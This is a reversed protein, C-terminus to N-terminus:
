ERLFDEYKVNEPWLQAASPDRKSTLYFDPFKGGPRATAAALVCAFVLMATM